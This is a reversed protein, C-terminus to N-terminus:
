LMEFSLQKMAALVRNVGRGDVIDICRSSWDQLVGQKMLRDLAAFLMSQTIEDHHGLLQIVGLKHLEQSILRQNEAMTVVLCPLGLCLREWHTSGGAGIALDARSMLTALSTLNSHAYINSHARVKKRIAGERRNSSGIVVNVEIDSRDLAIFADLARETLNASDTGGFFILICEVTVRHPTLADRIKKYEPQLLAYRPGLLQRCHAPVKNAYREHMDLVLNQDLLVDCDHSRNCLDDIVMLYEASDRVVNEWRIDLLYHDVILWDVKRHFRANLIAQTAKADSVWDDLRVGSESSICEVSFERQAILDSLDGAEERCVFLVKVGLVRLATALTLCRMVHGSGLRVGGDVRFAVVM